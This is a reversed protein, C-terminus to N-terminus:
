RQLEERAREREEMREMTARQGEQYSHSYIRATIATDAHGLIASVNPLPEGAALALSAFTHRLDHFRIDPLEAQRLIRDFLRVLNSARIPTGVETVFVLGSEKWTGQRTGLTREEQQNAQHAKLAALLRLGIPIVRRSKKTKPGTRVLMGPTDGRKRRYRMQGTIHIERADWKIDVWRLGLLEGERMGTRVALLFLAYLRHNIATLHSLLKHVQLDTLAHIEDESEGVRPAKIGAKKVVNYPILGDSVAADLAASLRAYAKRATYPSLGAAEIDRLMQRVHNATLADLRLTGVYPEVHLRCDLRYEDLTDEKITGTKHLELWTKLWQVVTPARGLNVGNDRRKELDRLKALVEAETKAERHVRKAGNGPSFYAHWKGADDQFVSGRGTANKKSKAM